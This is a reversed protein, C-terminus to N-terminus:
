NEYIRKLQKFLFPHMQQMMAPKEFYYESATAWFEATNKLAYEDIDSTGKRIEDMKIKMFKIWADSNIHQMLTEPAGDATGDMHDIVRVFERIVVNYADKTNRFSDYLQRKAIRVIARKRKFSLMKSPRKTSKNSDIINSLIRVERVTTYKWDPFRFVPIIAGAAVLVKDNESISVGEEIIPIHNLFDLVKYEFIGKEQDTLNNYFSVSGMLLRRWEVKFENIHFTDGESKYVLTDESASDQKIEIGINLADTEINRKLEFSLANLFKKFQNKKLILYQKSTKNNFDRKLQEDTYLSLNGQSQDKFLACVTITIPHEGVKHQRKVLVDILYKFNADEHELVMAVSDFFSSMSEHIEISYVDIASKFNDANDKQKIFMELDDHELRMLHKIGTASLASYLQKVISIAEFTEIESKDGIAGSSLKYLARKFLNSPEESKIETLESPDVTVIGKLFM